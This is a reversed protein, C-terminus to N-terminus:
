SYDYSIEEQINYRNNRLLNILNDSCKECLDMGYRTYVTIDGPYKAFHGKRIEFWGDEYANCPDDDIVNGCKDCISSLYEKRIITEKKEEIRKM